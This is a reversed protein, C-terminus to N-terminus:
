KRRARQGASLMKKRLRLHNPTVEILEGEAIWQLAIELTLQRPPSLLLNEDKGAARINTLKKEKTPNVNIDNSKANEGIIMGEYVDVNSGVFLQGRPQLHFLAYNTTRGLRDAVLAGTKRYPIEGAWPAWGAFLTDLVGLGRTDNLFETRFGILGRSPILYELRMRGGSMAHMGMMRGKRKGLKDTIAGLFEEPLSMHLQEMPELTRGDEDTKTVVEPKSVCLEYGERRMEEIL